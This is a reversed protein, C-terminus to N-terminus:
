AGKKVKLDNYHNLFISLTPLLLNEMKISQIEEATAINREILINAIRYFEEDHGVLETAYRIGELELDKELEDESRQLYETYIGIPITGEDVSCYACLRTKLSRTCQTLAFSFFNFFQELRRCSSQYLLWPLPELDPAINEFSDPCNGIASNVEENISAYDQKKM